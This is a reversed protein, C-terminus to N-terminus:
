VPVNPSGHSGSPVPGIVSHWPMQSTLGLPCITQMVNALSPSVFSFPARQPLSVLQVALQEPVCHTECAAGLPVGHRVVCLWSLHEPSHSCPTQWDSVEVERQLYPRKPCVLQVKWVQEGVSAFVHM